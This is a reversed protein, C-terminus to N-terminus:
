YRMKKPIQPSSARYEHHAKGEDLKSKFKCLDGLDKIEQNNSFLCSEIQKSSLTSIGRSLQFKQCYQLIMNKLM